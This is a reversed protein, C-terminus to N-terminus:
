PAGRVMFGLYATLRFFSDRPLDLPHPAFIPRIFITIAGGTIVFEFFSTLRNNM